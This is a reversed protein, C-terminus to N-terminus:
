EAQFLCRSSGTETDLMFLICEGDMVPVLLGESTLIPDALLRGTLMASSPWAPDGNDLKFADVAGNESVFFVRDGTLAPTASAPGSLEQRWVERGSEIVLSHATGSVDAFFAHSDNVAPNGWIADEAEFTWAIRGSRTDLAYLIGEFTGCLLLDGALTPTDSVASGLDISWQVSGTNPDLAYVMHDLAAIYIHEGNMLPASWLAHEAEFPQPWAPSGDDLNLAYLKWDASPVYVIDGAILLGGIIRDQAGDFSWAINASIGEPQLAYVQQDYGGVVVHGEPDVAPPAYFSLARDPESPFRWQVEGTRLDIAHVSAGYAVYATTEDVTVGPWSSAALASGGACSSLISSLLILMGLMLMTKTRSHTTIKM